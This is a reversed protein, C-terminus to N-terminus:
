LIFIDMDDLLFLISQDALKARAQDRREQLTQGEPTCEDPLGLLTEWDSLLENSTLPDLETLLENTRDDVRGFEVALGDFLTSELLSEWAKGLPFLKRILGAYKKIVEPTAMFDM